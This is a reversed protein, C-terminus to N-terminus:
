QDTFYWGTAIHHYPLANDPISYGNAYTIFQAQTATEAIYCVGAYGTAYIERYFGSVGATSKKTFPFGQAFLYQPHNGNSNSMVISIEYYVCSGVKTYLGLASSTVSGGNGAITTPTWSGQEYDDLGQAYTDNSFTTPFQVSNGTITVAM